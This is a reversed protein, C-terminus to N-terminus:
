QFTDEETIAQLKNRFLKWAPWKGLAKELGSVDFSEHTRNAAFASQADAIKKLLEM